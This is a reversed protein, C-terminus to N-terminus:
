PAIYTMMTERMTRRQLGGRARWSLTVEVQVRVAPVPAATLVQGTKPDRVTVALTGVTDDATTGPTGNDWVTVTSGTTIRTYLKMRILEMQESVIQYARAREQEYNACINDFMLLTIVAIFSISVVMVTIISEILTFARRGGGGGSRLSKAKM